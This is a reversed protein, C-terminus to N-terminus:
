IEEQKVSCRRVVAETTRLTHKRLIKKKRQILRNQEIASTDHESIKISTHLVINEAKESLVKELLQPEGRLYFKLSKKRM